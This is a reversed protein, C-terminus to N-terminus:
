NANCVAFSLSQGQFLPQRQRSAMGGPPEVLIVEAGLDALQRGCGQGVRDCLDLIRLGSLPLSAQKNLTNASM